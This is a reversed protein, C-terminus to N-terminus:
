SRARKREGSASDRERAVDNMVSICCQSLAFIEDEGGAATRGRMDRRRAVCVYCPGERNGRLGTDRTRPRGNARNLVVEGLRVRGCGNDDDRSGAIRQLTRLNGGHPDRQVHIRAALVGAEDQVVLHRRGGRVWGRDNVVVM